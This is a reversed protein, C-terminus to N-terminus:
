PTGGKEADASDDDPPPDDPEEPMEAQLRPRAPVHLVTSYQHAPLRAIDIKIKFKQNGGGVDQSVELM